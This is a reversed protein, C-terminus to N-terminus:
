KSNRGSKIQSLWTIEKLFSLQLAGECFPLLSMARYLTCHRRGPSGNHLSASNEPWLYRRRADTFQLHCACTLHAMEYLWLYLNPSSLTLTDVVLAIELHWFALEQFNQNDYKQRRVFPAPLMTTGYPAGAKSGM